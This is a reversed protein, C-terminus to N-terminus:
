LVVTSREPTYGPSRTDRPKPKTAVYGYTKPDWVQYATDSM